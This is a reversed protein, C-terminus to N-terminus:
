NTPKDSATCEVNRRQIGCYGFGIPQVGIKTYGEDGWSAGWSNRVLWYDKGNETGYGECVVAHNLSQGCESSEIVGGSYTQFVTSSADITCAVPGKDIAEKLKKAFLKGVL